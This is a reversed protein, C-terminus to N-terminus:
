LDDADQVPTEDPDAPVGTYSGLPDVDIRQPQLGMLSDTTFLKPSIKKSKMIGGGEKNAQLSFHFSYLQFNNKKM